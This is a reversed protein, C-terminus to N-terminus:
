VGAIGINQNNDASIEFTYVSPYLLDYDSVQVSDISLYNPPSSIYYTLPADFIWQLTKATGSLIYYTLSFNKSEFESPNKIGRIFM